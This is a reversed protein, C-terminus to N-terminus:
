AISFQFPYNSFQIQTACCRFLLRALCIAAFYLKWGNELPHLTWLHQCFLLEEKVSKELIGSCNRKKEQLKSFFNIDNKFLMSISYHLSKLAHSDWFHVRCNHYLQDSLFFWCVLRIRFHAVPFVTLLISCQYRADKFM